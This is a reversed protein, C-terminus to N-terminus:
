HPAYTLELRVCHATRKKETLLIQNHWARKLEAIAAEAEGTESFLHLDVRLETSGKENLHELVRQDQLLERLVPQQVLDTLQRNKERAVNECRADRQRYLSRHRHIHWLSLNDLSM